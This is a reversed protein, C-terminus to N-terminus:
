GCAAIRQPWSEGLQREHDLCALVVPQVGEEGEVEVADCRLHPEDAGPGFPQALVRRHEFLIAGRQV